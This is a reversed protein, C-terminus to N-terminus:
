PQVVVSDGDSLDLQGHTVVLEGEKLGSLIELRDPFARGVRVLRLLAHHEPTAVYVLDLQGRQILAKPPIFLTEDGGAPLLLRGFQGPHSGPTNPLAVKVVFTRTIPDSSSALEDVRGRVILGASALSVSLSDGEAILGLKSEPLTAVFRQVGSEELTFLPKGPVALDGVEVLKRTVTGSFPANVTAYSLYTEAEALTAEAVARRSRALDYEQQTAAKQQLLAEFRALELATQDSVARAQDVRARYERTDLQALLEGKAVRRGLVVPIREVRAQLKAEIDVTSRATVTGMFEESSSELVRTAPAVAVPRPLAYPRDSHPSSGGCAALIWASAVALALWSLIRV